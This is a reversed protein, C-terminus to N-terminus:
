NLLTCGAGNRLEICGCRDTCMATGFDCCSTEEGCDVFECQGQEACLSQCEERVNGCVLSEPCAQDGECRQIPECPEGSRVRCQGDECLGTICNQDITCASNFGSVCIGARCGGGACCSEGAGPCAYGVPTCCGGTQACEQDERCAVCPSGRFGCHERSQPLCTTGACCGGVCCVGSNGGCCNGKCYRGGDTCMTPPPPPPAECSTRCIEGGTGCQSASQRDPLICKGRKSTCCGDACRKACKKRNKRGKAEADTLRHWGLAGALAGGLLSRRTAGDLTRALLDFRFDNM